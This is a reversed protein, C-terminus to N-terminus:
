RLDLKVEENNEEDAFTVFSDELEQVSFADINDGKKVIFVDNNRSFFATKDAKKELFGMFRMGSVFVKLRSPPPPPAPMVVPPPPATAAKVTKPRQVEEDRFSGFIDKVVGKYAPRPADLLSLRVEPMAKAREGTEKDLPKGGTKRVPGRLVGIDYFIIGSLVLASIILLRKKDM